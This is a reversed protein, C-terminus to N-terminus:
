ESVMQTFQKSSETCRDSMQQFIKNLHELVAQKETTMPFADEVEVSAQWYKESLHRKFRGVFKGDPRASDSFDSMDVIKRKNMRKCSTFEDYNSSSCGSDNSCSHNDSLVYYYSETPSISALTKHVIEGEIDSRTMAGDLESDPILHLDCSAPSMFHQNIRQLNEFRSNCRRFGGEQNPITMKNTPHSPSHCSYSPSGTLCWDDQSNGGGEQLPITMPPTTSTQNAMHNYTPSMQHPSGPAIMNQQGCNVNVSLDTVHYSNDPSYPPYLPESYPSGQSSADSQYPSHPSPINQYMPSHKPSYQCSPSHVPSGNLVYGPSNVSSDSIYGGPSPMQRNPSECPSVSMGPSPQFSNNYSQYPPPPPRHVMQNTTMNMPENSGMEPMHWQDQMGSGFESKFPPRQNATMDSNGYCRMKKTPGGSQNDNQLMMLIEDMEEEAFESSTVSTHSGSTQCTNSSTVTQGQSCPQWSSVAPGHGQNWMAGVKKEYDCSSNTVEKKIQNCVSSTKLTDINSNDEGLRPNTSNQQNDVEVLPQRAMKPSSTLSSSVDSGDAKKPRGM